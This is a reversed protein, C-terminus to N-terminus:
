IYVLRKRNIYKEMTEKYIEGRRYMYINPWLARMDICINNM